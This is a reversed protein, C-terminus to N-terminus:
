IYKLVFNTFREANDPNSKSDLWLLLESCVGQSSNYEHHIVYNTIIYKVQQFIDEAVNLNSPCKGLIEAIKVIIEHENAEKIEKLYQRDFISDSFITNESHDFCVTEGHPERTSKSGSMMNDEMNFFFCLTKNLFNNFFSKIIYRM